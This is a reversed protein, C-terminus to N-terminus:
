ITNSEVQQLFHRAGGAMTYRMAPELGRLIGDYSVVQYAAGVVLIADIAARVVVPDTDASWADIWADIAAREEDPRDRSWSLWTVLDISPDAIAADSWDIIRPAGDALAVNGAHFDGHVLTTPFGLRSVREVADRTADVARARRDPPWSADAVVADEGLVAAVADPMGALPRRPCGADALPQVDGAAARQMAVLARVGADLGAQRDAVPMEGILPAAVDEVLLWGEDPEIAIVTPVSEPFQEALLLTIAPEAHFPPFVAKLFLDRGATRGRLLASIGRLYFVAPEDVLPRRAAAAAVIMWGSARALWGPRSWRPRLDPPPLRDRLERLWEAARPALVDPLGDPETPIPAFAWGPPPAWGAPAAETTVLVPIPDGDAVGDWRPLTELVPARFSWSNRLFATVAVIAAEDEDGVIEGAPLQGDPGLLVTRGGPGPVILRLDLRRDTM